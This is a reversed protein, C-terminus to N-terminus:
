FASTLNYLPLLIAAFLGAVMGGIVVILIPQILEVLNSVTDEVERRYFDSIKMLLQDLRGTSEGVAILQSVLPPFFPAHRLTQSLLQGKRINQASEHLVDRYVYNGITHSSIEIAQPITLGGQILVRAAEAFRSIYLKQFLKGLLPLRLSIEDLLVRGEESQFYNVVILLLGGLGGVVAWWWSAMFTGFAILIKTFFPLEVNSEAFIPAIQPLVMTLMVFVVVIFLVIVFIPYILANRMKSILASQKELYDALFELVEALRGTVEASKVMNVYFESFVGPHRALAQSLSFGAEIDAVLERIVEKLLPKSVQEYLSRLSDGVPVQSSLLTAFQRTFIMLDATKVRELLSTIRSLWSDERVPEISLLFLGHSLLIGAAADRSSAEVNGVQLEGDKTRAKYGFKM